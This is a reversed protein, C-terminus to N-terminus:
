CGNKGDTAEYQSNCRETDAVSPNMVASMKQLGRLMFAVYSRGNFTVEVRAFDRGRPVYVKFQKIGWRDFVRKLRKSHASLEYVGSEVIPVGNIGVDRVRVVYRGDLTEQVVFDCGLKVFRDVVFHCTDVYFSQPCRGLAKFYYELAREFHRLFLAWYRGRPFPPSYNNSPVGVRKSRGSGAGAEANVKARVKRVKVKVCGVRGSRFMSLIKALLEHNSLISFLRVREESSLRYVRYYLWRLSDSLKIHKLSGKGEILGKNRLEYLIRRVSGYPIRFTNAIDKLSNFNTKCALAITIIVAKQSYIKNSRLFHETKQLLTLITTNIHSLKSTHMSRHVERSPESKIILRKRINTGFFIYFYRKDLLEFSFTNCFILISSNPSLILDNKLHCDTAV